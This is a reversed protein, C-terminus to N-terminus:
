LPNLLGKREVDLIGPRLLHLRDDVLEVLHEKGLDGVLQTVYRRMREPVWSRLQGLTVVEPSAWYLLVLIHDRRSLDALLVPKGEVEQVLPVEKAVISDIMRQAADASVNHAVRVLEALIWDMVSLVLTADQLNPDIGDKLHGNDRKNRVGYILRISRTVHLRLGDGLHVLNEIQNLATEVKLEATLATYPPNGLHQLIRTVAECFRGGNIAAPRYDNLFFRRKQEEYENLLASVLQAPIGAGVFSAELRSREVSSM